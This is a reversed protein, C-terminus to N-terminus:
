EVLHVNNIKTLVTFDWVIHFTNGLISVVYIYFLKGTFNLYPIGNTLQFGSREPNLYPYNEVPTIKM